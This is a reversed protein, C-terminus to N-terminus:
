NENKLKLYKAKYKLYKLYYKDGGLMDILNNETLESLNPLKDIDLLNTLGKVDTMFKNFKEKNDKLYLPNVLKLLREFFTVSAMNVKEKIQITSIKNLITMILKKIVDKNEEINTGYVILSRFLILLNKMEIQDKVNIVIEMVIFFILRRIRKKYKADDWPYTSVDFLTFILDNIHGYISYSKFKFNLKPNTYDYDKYERDAHNFFIPLGSSQKKLISVDILESPCDFFGIKDDNSIYYAVFNIKLRHLSFYALIGNNNYENSENLSLYINDKKEPNLKKYYKSNDNTLSMLFDSVTSNTRKNQLFDKYRPANAIDENSIFTKDLINPLDTTDSFVHKNFYTIGIFKKINAVNTCELNDTKMKALVTNMEALKNLIIDDNLLNLPVFFDPFFNFYNRLINLCHYSIINVDYYIKEFLIKNDYENIKPNILITYDSDSREFEKPLDNFFESMGKEALLSKYKEYVIKMTTGGKYLFLIDDDKIKAGEERLYNIYNQINVNYVTNVLLQFKAIYTQNKDSFCVEKAVMSTMLDLFRKKCMMLGFNQKQEQENVSPLAFGDSKILINRNASTYNGFVDKDSNNLINKIDFNFHPMLDKKLILNLMLIDKSDIDTM